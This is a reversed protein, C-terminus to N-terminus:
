SAGRGRKERKAQAELGERLAHAKNLLKAAENMLVLRAQDTKALRADALLRKADTMLARREATIKAAKSEHANKM